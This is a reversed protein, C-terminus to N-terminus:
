ASSARQGEQLVRRAIHDALLAGKQTVRFHMPGVQEVTGHAVQEALVRAVGAPLAVHHEQALRALDVGRELDRMGSFIRDMLAEQPLFSEEDVRAREGQLYAKVDPRTRWRRATGDLPSRVFSVGGPGLALTTTGAWYLRNHVAHHGPRAHSSVEYQVFGAQGLAHQVSEYRDAEADDDLITLRGRDRRRSLETGPEYTLCYASIHPALAALARADEAVADVGQGPSGFILDASFTRLGSRGLRELAARAEGESHDRGLFRLVDAQLSQVGLSVRTVGAAVWGDVNDQTCDHPNAELTVEAGPALPVDRAVGELLQGVQAPALLGPTGGGLYVSALAGVEAGLEARDARWQELVRPVFAPDPRGVVLYFDCYPCRYRCWPVHVYVGATARQGEAETAM